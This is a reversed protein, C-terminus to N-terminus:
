AHHDPQAMRKREREARKREAPTKPPPRDLPPLESLGAARAARVRARYRADRQATTLPMM